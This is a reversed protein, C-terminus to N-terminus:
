KAEVDINLARRPTERARKIWGPSRSNWEPSVSVGVFVFPRLKISEIRSRPLYFKRLKVRAKM